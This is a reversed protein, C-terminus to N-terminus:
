GGAAGGSCWPEFGGRALVKRGRGVVLIIMQQVTQKMQCLSHFPLDQAFLPPSIARHRIQESPHRIQRQIGLSKETLAEEREKAPPSPEILEGGTVKGSAKEQGAQEIL